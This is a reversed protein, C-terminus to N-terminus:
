GHSAGASRLTPMIQLLDERQMCADNRGDVINKIFEKWGNTGEEQIGFSVITRVWWTCDLIPVFDFFSSSAHALAKRGSNNARVGSILYLVCVELM